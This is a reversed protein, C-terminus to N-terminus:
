QSKVKRGARNAKEEDLRAVEKMLEDTIKHLKELYVQHEDIKQQTWQVPFAWRNM